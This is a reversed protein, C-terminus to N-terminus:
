SRDYAISKLATAGSVRFGARSLQHPLREPASLRLLTLAIGAYGVMYDPTYTSPQEAPLVYHGNQESGFSEILQGLSNAAALYTSDGTTQYVDLLFEISGALGHCQTANLWRMGRSATLASRLALDRAGALLDHQALHLLFRGIGVAGHCWFGASATGGEVAPWTVGSRDELAPLALRTLWRGTGQILPLLQEDGTIAFLDLLADAIGAAGHAYGLYTQGSLKGYGGPITWSAEQRENISALQQLYSSCTLAAQLHEETGYEDWLLLHFRLRGALGNFLDPSAYPLTLIHRGRESAAALLTEEHLVQGARLLAAGVGATGVYLGPLEQPGIAPASKLWQSGRALTTRSQTDGLEAVLEALALVTGANGAYLDRTNLGYILPHSSKWVLGSHNASEEASACLTALLKSALLRYHSEHEAPANNHDMYADQLLATPEASALASDLEAASPYRREPSAALCRSIITQLAASIDPRLLALHRELAAGQRMAGGPEVGTVMFYLLAGLSYIDDAVSLAEGQAQQPSMYGPTGEGQKGILNTSGFDILKLEGAPTIIVNTSKMDAYIFGQTHLTELLATLEKGWTLVQHLPTARGQTALQNVYDSLTEGEVDEMVLFLDHAQQILDYFAPIHPNPALRALLQAERRLREAFSRDMSGQQGNYGPGKLICTRAEDLDTGLYVIHHPSAAIASMLLYRSAILRQPTPPTSAIGADVFPDVVGDPATYRTLRQDPILENDKRYAPVITGDLQQLLQDSSFSGYRYYVLSGPRLPHDSPINPGHLGHTAADLKAALQVATADDIPYITIFKGVQSSGGGGQNLRRLHQVSAAIKFSTAESLLIPLAQRLVNEASAVNASIHLKWGYRPLAKSACYFSIWQRAPDTSQKIRWPRSHADESAYVEDIIHMLPDNTAHESLRNSWLVGM